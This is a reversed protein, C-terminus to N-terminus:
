AEWLGHLNCLERVTLNEGQVCFVAEPADEPTLFKRCAKGDAIVEIWQIFHEDTMPHPVDGVKVKIGGDTKEVVPVHKEKGTDATKAELLTMKMDCCVMTGDGVGIVETTNGCNDCQYIQLKETM